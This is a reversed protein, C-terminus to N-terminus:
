VFTKAFDQYSKINRWIAIPLSRNKIYYQVSIGLIAVAIGIIQIYYVLWRYEYANLDKPEIRNIALHVVVFTLNLTSCLVQTTLDVMSRPVNRMEIDRADKTPQRRNEIANQSNSIRGLEINRTSQEIKRQYLFIKASAFIHLLFSIIVLISTTDYKRAGKGQGDEDDYATPDKGSCMYFNLPMRGVSVKKVLAMWFSVVLISIQLFGAILDDKIVAFNSLKFIFIYRLLIMCDLTLVVCICFFNKLFNHVDCFTENLPGNLYRIGDPIFVLLVYSVVLWCVTAFLQNIVTRYRHNGNREYWIIGFQLLLGFVAGVFFIIITLQKVGTNSYM